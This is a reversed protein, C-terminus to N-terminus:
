EFDGATVKEGEVESLLVADGLVGMVEKETGLYHVPGTSPRQVGEGRVNEWMEETFVYFDDQGLHQEIAKEAAEEFSEAEIAAIATDSCDAVFQDIRSRFYHTQM